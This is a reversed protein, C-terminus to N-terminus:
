EGDEPMLTRARMQASNKTEFKAWYKDYIVKFQQKNADFWRDAEASKMRTVRTKKLWKPFEDIGTHFDSTGDRRIPTPIMAGSGWNPRVIVFYTKGAEVNALMFDAATGHGMYEKKGPSTHHILKYGMRLKGVYNMKGKEIVFIDAPIAGAVFSTRMFVIQAKDPPAPGVATEETKISFDPVSAACASLLLSILAFSVTKIKVPMM